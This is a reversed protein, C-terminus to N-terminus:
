CFGVWLETSSQIDTFIVAFPKEPDKPAYTNDRAKLTPSTGGTLSWSVMIISRQQGQFIVEERPYNKDRGHCVPTVVCAAAANQRGSGVVVGCSTGIRVLRSTIFPVRDLPVGKQM